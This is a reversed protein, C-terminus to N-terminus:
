VTEDELIGFSNDPNSLPVASNADCFVNPGVPGHDYMKVFVKSAGLFYKAKRADAPRKDSIPSFRQGIETLSICFAYEGSIM